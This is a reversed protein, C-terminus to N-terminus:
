KDWSEGWNSGWELKAEGGSTRVIEDKIDVQKVDPSVYAKKNEAVNKM